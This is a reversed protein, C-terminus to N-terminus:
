KVTESQAYEIMPPRLFTEQWEKLNTSTHSVIWSILNKGSWRFGGRRAPNAPGPKQRENKAM